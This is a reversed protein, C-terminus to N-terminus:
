RNKPTERKQQAVIAKAAAVLTEWASEDSSAAHEFTFKWSRSSKSLGVKEEADIHLEGDYDPPYTIVIKM